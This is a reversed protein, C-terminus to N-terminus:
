IRHAGWMEVGEEEDGGDEGEVAGGELVVEDPVVGKIYDLVGGDLGPGVGGGCEGGGFGGPGAVRGVGNGFPSGEAVDAVEYVVGEVAEVGDAPVECVYDEM